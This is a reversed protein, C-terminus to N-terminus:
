GEGQMPYDRYRCGPGPTEDFVFDDETEPEREWSLSYGNAYAYIREPVIVDGSPLHYVEKDMLRVVFPRPFSTLRGVEHSLDEADLDAANEFREFRTPLGNLPYSSIGYHVLATKLIWAM